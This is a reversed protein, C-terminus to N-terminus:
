WGLREAQEALVLWDRAIQEFTRREEPDRCAKAKQGAEEARRRYDDAKLNPM